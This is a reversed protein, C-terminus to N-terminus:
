ASQYKVPTYKALNGAANLIQGMNHVSWLGWKRPMTGGYLQAVSFPGWTYTASTTANTPIITLLRMLVKSEATVTLAADTGTAAANYATGDFSGYCWVEIQKAATPAVSHSVFQGGVIADIALDTGANDVSTSARGILLTSDTALSNLTWTLSTVSGYVPTATVAM